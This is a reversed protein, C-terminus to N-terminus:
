NGVVTMMATVISPCVIVRTAGSEMEAILTQLVIPGLYVFIQTRPAFSVPTAILTWEAGMSQDVCIVSAFLAMPVSVTAGVSWTM